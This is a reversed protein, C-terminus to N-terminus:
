YKRENSCPVLGTGLTVIGKLVFCTGNFFPKSHFFKLKPEFNLARVKAWYFSIKPDVLINVVGWAEKGSM